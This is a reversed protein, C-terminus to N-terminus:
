LNTIGPGPTFGLGKGWTVHSGWGQRGKSELMTSQAWLVNSIVLGQRGLTQLHVRCLNVGARPWGLLETLWSQLWRRSGFQIVQLARPFGQLVHYTGTSNNFGVVKATMKHLAPVSNISGTCTSYGTNPWLPLATLPFHWLRSSLPSAFMQYYGRGGRSWHFAAYGRHLKLVGAFTGPSGATWRWSFPPWQSSVWRSGPARCSDLSGPPQVDPLFLSSKLKRCSQIAM